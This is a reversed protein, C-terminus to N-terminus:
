PKRSMAQRLLRVGEGPDMTGTVLREMPCPGDGTRNLISPVSRSWEVRIADENLIERATESMVIGFVASLGMSRAILAAARGVVKDALAAHRASEGIRQALDLLDRVGAGAGTGLVNGNKVLVFAVGRAELESKAQELDASM